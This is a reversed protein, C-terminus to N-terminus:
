IQLVNSVVLIYIKNNNYALPDTKVKLVNLGIVLISKKKKVM